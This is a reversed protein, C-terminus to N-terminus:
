LAIWKKFFIKIQKLKFIFFLLLLIINYYFNLMIKYNEEDKVYNDM